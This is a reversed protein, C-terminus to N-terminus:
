WAQRPRSKHPDFIPASYLEIDRFENRPDSVKSQVPEQRVFGLGIISEFLPSYCASTISITGTAPREVIRTEPKWLSFAADGGAKFATFRIEPKGAGAELLDSLGLESISPKIRCENTFLFFGAEIRLIDIAAFGAPAVRESLQEWLRAKDSEGLLIELGKEGSYGLRGVICSVGGIKAETFYFYPLAKVVDVDTHQELIALTNQGQISIIANGESLDDVKFGGNQLSLLEVIDDRCGSMIEFATAAIRWLTLDSRVSGQPDTKVSFRIQGIRMDNIKRPQFNEIERIANPGCARVRYVFSFDFLACDTRCRFAEQYPDGYDRIVQDM